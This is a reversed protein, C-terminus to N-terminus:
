VSGMSFSNQFSCWPDSEVYKMVACCIISFTFMDLDEKNSDALTFTSPKLISLPCEHKLQLKKNSLFEASINSTKGSNSNETRSSM